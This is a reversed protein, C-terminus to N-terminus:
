ARKSVPILAGNVSAAEPSLLFLIVKAVQAPPVWRSGDNDPMAARNAPTDLTTPLVANVTVPTGVLEAALSETFRHVASKSATYGAMGAAGASASAAGINVIRGAPSQRLYPLAAVSTNVATKLNTAFLSEWSAEDAHEVTEFRFTGAVNVLADIRGFHADVAAVARRAADRSSLDVDGVVFLTSSPDRGTPAPHHRHDIRAVRWGEAVCASTVATGLAGFAGTVIVVRPGNM